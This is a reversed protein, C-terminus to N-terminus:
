ILILNRELQYDNMTKEPFVVKFTNYNELHRFGDPYMLLRPHGFYQHYREKIILAKENSITTNKINQRIVNSMLRANEKVVDRPKRKEKLRIPDDKSRRPPPIRLIKKGDIFYYKSRQDRKNIHERRKNEAIFEAKDKLYSSNEYYGHFNEYAILDDYSQFIPKRSEFQIIAKKVAENFENSNFDASTIGQFEKSLEYLELEKIVPIFQRNDIDIGQSFKIEEEEEDALVPPSDDLDKNIDQYFKPDQNNNPSIDKLSNRGFDNFNKNLENIIDAEIKANEIEEYYLALNDYYERVPYNSNIYKEIEIRERKDTILNKNEKLKKDFYNHLKDSPDYNAYKKQLAKEDELYKYKRNEEAIDMESLKKNTPKKDPHVLDIKEIVKFNKDLYEKKEDEMELEKETKKLEIYIRSKDLFKISKDIKRKSSGNQDEFKLDLVKDESSGLNVSTNEEDKKKKDSTVELNDNTLQQITESKGSKENHSEEFILENFIKEKLNKIKSRLNAKRAYREKEKKELEEMKEKDRYIDNLHYNKSLIYLGHSIAYELSEDNYLLYSENKAISGKAEEKELNNITEEDLLMKKYKKITDSSAIYKSISAFLQDHYESSRSNLVANFM